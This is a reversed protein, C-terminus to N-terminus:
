NGLYEDLYWLLQYWIGVTRLDYACDKLTFLGGKGNPEYERYLFKDLVDRIYNNDFKNGTMSYLDLNKIMVWFWKATRDGKDPDCMIQEECRISLAIMMELVTCPGNLEDPIDTMGYKDSAFRYRLYTGDNARNVDEDMFFIFKERNLYDLLKLCNRKPSYKTDIVWSFLWIRYEERM